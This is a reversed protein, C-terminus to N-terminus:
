QYLEEIKNIVLDAWIKHSKPGYHLGDTGRDVNKSLVYPIFERYDSLYYDIMERLQNKEKDNDLSPNGGLTFFAFRLKMLRSLKVIYELHEMLGFLLQKDNYVEIYSKNTHALQSENLKSGLSDDKFFRLRGIDTLQLVVIQNEFFELNRFIDFSRYNGSGSMALNLHSLSFHNSVINAYNDEQNILGVGKTHSCGLFIATGESNKLDFEQLLNYPNSDLGICNFKKLQSITDFYETFNKFESQPSKAWYIKDFQPLYEKLNRCDALSTHYVLEDGIIGEFLVSPPLNLQKYFISTRVDSSGVILHKM